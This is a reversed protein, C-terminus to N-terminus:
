SSTLSAVASRLIEATESGSSCVAEIPISGRPDVVVVPIERAIAEAIIQATGGRGRAPAKDWVGVLMSCRDLIARGAREYAQTEDDGPRRAPQLHVQSRVQELQAFYATLDSADEFDCAFDDRPFPLIADLKWGLDLAAWGAIRDAGDAFNSLLAFRCKDGARASAEIALLLGVLKRDLLALDCGGLRHLRHGTVGVVFQMGISNNM